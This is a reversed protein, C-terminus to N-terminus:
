LLSIRRSLSAPTPNSHFGPGNTISYATTFHLMLRAKVALWGLKGVVEAYRRQALDDADTKQMLMM